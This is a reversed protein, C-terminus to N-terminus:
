ANEFRGSISTLYSIVIIAGDVSATLQALMMDFGTSVYLGELPNLFIFALVMILFAKRAWGQYFWMGITLPFWLFVFAWYLWTPWIIVAGYGSWSLINYADESMSHVSTGPFLIYLLYSLLSILLLSRYLKTM